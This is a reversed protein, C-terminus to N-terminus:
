HHFEEIYDLTLRVIYNSSIGGPFNPEYMTIKSSILDALSKIGYSSLHHRMLPISFKAVALVKVIAQSSKQIYSETIGYKGADKRMREVIYVRLPDFSEMRIEFSRRDEGM